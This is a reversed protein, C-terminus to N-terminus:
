LVVRPPGYNSTCPKPSLDVTSDYCTPSDFLEPTFEHQTQRTPPLMVTEDDNSAFEDNDTSKKPSPPLPPPSLVLRTEDSDSSQESPPPPSLVLRTEDSDTDSHSYKLKKPSPSFSPSPSSVWSPQHQQFTPSSPPSPEPSQRPTSTRLAVPPLPRSATIPIHCLLKVGHGALGRHVRSLIDASGSVRLEVDLM